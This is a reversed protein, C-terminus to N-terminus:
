PKILHQLWETVDTWEPLQAIVYPVIFAGVMYLLAPIIGLAHIKKLSEMKTLNEPSGAQVTLREKEMAKEKNFDKISHAWGILAWGAHNFRFFLIPTILLGWAKSIPLIWFFTMILVAVGESYLFVTYLYWHYRKLGGRNDANYLDILVRKRKMSEIVPYFLVLEAFSYFLSFLLIAVGSVFLFSTWSLITGGSLLWVFVCVTNGVALGILTSYYSGARAKREKVYKVQNVLDVNDEVKEFLTMNYSREVFFNYHSPITHGIILVISFALVYPIYHRFLSTIEELSVGRIQFDPKAIWGIITFLIFFGLVSLILPLMSPLDKDGLLYKDKPGLESTEIDHYNLLREMMAINENEPIDFDGKIKKYREIDVQKSRKITYLETLYVHELPFHEYFPMPLDCTLHVLTHLWRKVKLPLNACGSELIVREQTIRAVRPNQTYFDYHEKCMHDKYEPNNCRCINCTHPRYNVM